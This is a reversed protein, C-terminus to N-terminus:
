ADPKDGVFPERTRAGTIDHQLQLAGPAVAGRV